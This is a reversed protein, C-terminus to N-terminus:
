HWALVLVDEFAVKRHLPRQRRVFLDALTGTLIENDDSHRRFSFDDPILSHLRYVATFEETIRM